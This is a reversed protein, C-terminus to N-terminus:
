SDQAALILEATEDRLHGLHAELGAVPDPVRMAFDCLILCAARLIAIQGILDDEVRRYHTFGIDRIEQMQDAPLGGLDRPFAIVNM